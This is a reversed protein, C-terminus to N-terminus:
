DGLEAGEGARPPFLGVIRGTWAKGLLHKACRLLTVLLGPVQFVAVRETSRPSAGTKAPTHLHPQKRGLGTVHRM